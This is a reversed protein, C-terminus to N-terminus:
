KLWMYKVLVNIVFPTIVIFLIIFFLPFLELSFSRSKNGANHGAALLINGRSQKTTTSRAIVHSCRTM